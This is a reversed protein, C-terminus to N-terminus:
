SVALLKSVGKKCKVVDGDAETISGKKAVAQYSGPTAPSPLNMQWLGSADTHVAGITESKGYEDVKSVKVTRDSKCPPHARVKGSFSQPTEHKISVKKTPYKTTEFRAEHAVAIAAALAVTGLAIAFLTMVRTM